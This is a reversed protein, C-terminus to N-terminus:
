YTPTSDFMSQVFLYASGLRPAAVFARERLRGKWDTGHRNPLFTIRGGHASYPDALTKTQSGIAQAMQTGIGIM